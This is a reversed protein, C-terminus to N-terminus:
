PQSAPQNSNSAWAINTKCEKRHHSQICSSTLSSDLRSERRVAGSGHFYFCQTGIDSSGLLCNEM